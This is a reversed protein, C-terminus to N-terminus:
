VYYIPSNYLVPSSSLSQSTPHLRPLSQLKFYLLWPSRVSCIVNLYLSLAPPVICPTNMPSGPQALWFRERSDPNQIDRCTGILLSKYFGSSFSMWTSKSASMTWLIPLIFLSVTTGGFIFLSLFDKDRIWEYELQLRWGVRCLAPVDRHTQSTNNNNNNMKIFICM